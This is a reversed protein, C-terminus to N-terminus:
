QQPEMIQQLARLARHLTVAFTAKSSGMAAAAEQQSLGSLYRLTIAEQYRPPLLALASRLQATARGDPDERDDVAIAPDADFVVGIGAAAARHDRRRRGDERRYHDTLENAAIRFVWARFGGDRWEFRRLHRLAREFAAATVDDAVTSSGCRRYVYAHIDRVHRRYLEAFADARDLALAVLERDDPPPPEGGSSRSGAADAALEM